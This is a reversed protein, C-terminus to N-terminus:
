RSHERQEFILSWVSNSCVLDVHIFMPGPKQFEAAPSPGTSLSQSSTSGPWTLTGCAGPLRAPATGQVLDELLDFHVVGCSRHCGPLAPETPVRPQHHVVVVRLLALVGM